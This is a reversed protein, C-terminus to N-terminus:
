EEMPEKEMFAASDLLATNEETSCLVELDTTMAIYMKTANISEIRKIIEDNTMGSHEMLEKLSVQRITGVDGDVHNILGIKLELLCDKAEHRKRSGEMDRYHAEIEAETGTYLLEIDHDHTYYMYAENYMNWLIEKPVHFEKVLDPFGCGLPCDGEHEQADKEDIWAFFSEEGIYEVLDYDYQHYDETHVTCYSKEVEQVPGDLSADITEIVISEELVMAEELITEVEEEVAVTAPTFEPADITSVTETTSACSVMFFCVGICVLVKKM